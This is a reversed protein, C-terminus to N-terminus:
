IDVFYMKFELGTQKLLVSKPALRRESIQQTVDNTSMGM